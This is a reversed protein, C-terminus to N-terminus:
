SGGPSTPQIGQIFPQFISYQGRGTLRDPGMLDAIGSLYRTHIPQWILNFNALSQSTYRALAETPREQLVLLDGAHVLIRERVDRQARNLDVRIPVQGGDTTKRLIVLLSASPQGIGPVFIAGSLTSGGFSGNNLPGRVLSVATLVDLDKDRPMVHEGTPLLGATYYVDKDRAELYVVDGTQLIVDQPAFTLPLGPEQRLPIRVMPARETWESPVPTNPPFQGMKRLL